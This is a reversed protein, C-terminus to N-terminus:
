RTSDEHIPSPVFRLTTNSKHINSNLENDIFYMCVCVSVFEGLYEFSSVLHASHTLSHSPVRFLYLYRFMAAYQCFHAHM